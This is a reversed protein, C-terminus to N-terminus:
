DVEENPEIFELLPGEGVYEQGWGEFGEHANRAFLDIRPTPTWRGLMQYFRAPKRSHSTQPARFIDICRGYPAVHAIGRTCFLIPEITCRYPTWPKPIGDGQKDWYLMVRYRFGWAKVIQFAQELVIDGEVTRGTTAWLFLLCREAAFDNIPFTFIDAESVTSYPLDHLSSGQLSDLKSAGQNVPWPPDVVVTRYKGTM